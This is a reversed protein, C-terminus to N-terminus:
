DKIVAQTSTISEFYDFTPTDRKIFFIHQYVVGKHIGVIYAKSNEFKGLDEMNYVGAVIKNAYEFFEVRPTACVVIGLVNERQFKTYDLM